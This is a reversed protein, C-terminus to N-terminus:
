DGSVHNLISHLTSFHLLFKRSRSDVHYCPVFISIACWIWAVSTVAIVIWWYIVMKHIRCVLIRFFFLFSFKVSFITTYTLVLYVSSLLHFRILQDDLDPPVITSSPRTLLAEELFLGDVFTYLLGVSACLCIEAFVLFADDISLRKQYHLRIM